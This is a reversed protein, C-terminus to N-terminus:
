EGPGTGPDQNRKSLKDLNRLVEPDQSTRRTEELFRRTAEDKKRRREQNRHLVM